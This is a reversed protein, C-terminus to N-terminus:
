VKNILTFGEKIQKSVVALAIALNNIEIASATNDATLTALRKAINEKTTQLNAFTTTKLKAWCGGTKENIGVINSAQKQTYGKNLLNLYEAKKRQQRSPTKDITEM